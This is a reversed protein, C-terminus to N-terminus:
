IKRTLGNNVFKSFGCVVSNTSYVESCYRQRVSWIKKIKLTVSEIGYWSTKWIGNIFTMNSVQGATM